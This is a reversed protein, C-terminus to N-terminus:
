SHHDIHRRRSESQFLEDQLLKLTDLLSDKEKTLTSIEDEQVIIKQQLKLNEAIVANAHIESDNTGNSPLSIKYLKSQLNENEKQISEMDQQVKRNLQKQSQLLNSMEQLSKKLQQNELLLSQHSPSSPRGEEKDETQQGSLEKTEPGSSLVSEATLHFIGDYGRSIALKHVMCEMPPGPPINPKPADDKLSLNFDSVTVHMPLAQGTSEDEVFKAMNALSSTNFALGCKEAMVSLYGPSDTQTTIPLEADAGPGSVIKLKITFTKLDDPSIESQGFMGPTSTFKNYFDEYYMNGPQNTSLHRTQIRIATDSGDNQMLIESGRVRFAIVSVLERGKTAASSEAYLSSMDDQMDTDTSSATESAGINPHHFAPMETEELNLMEFDLDDDSNDTRISMTDCDDIEENSDIKAKIKDTLGTIGSLASTFSKKMQDAAKNASKKMQQSGSGRSGFSSDYGSSSDHHNDALGQSSHSIQASVFMGQNSHEEVGTLGLGTHCQIKSDSLSKSIATHSSCQSGSDVISDNVRIDEDETVLGLDLDIQQSGEDKMYGEEMLDGDRLSAGSPSAPMNHTFPLLEAVYPCVMVFELDPVVLPVSFTTPSDSVGLFHEVDVSLQTQFVTFSELLRMLFLYQSHSMQAKVPGGVKAVINYNALQSSQGKDEPKLSINTKDCSSPNDDPSTDYSESDTSYYEKLLKRAPRDRQPSVSNYPDGDPSPPFSGANSSGRRSNGSIGVVDLQNNQCLKTEAEDMVIPMCFWLSVPVSEVFPIPRSKSVPVGVFELWAQDACVSWVDFSANRKLTNTKLLKAIAESGAQSEIGQPLRGAVLDKAYRQMYANDQGNAFMSFHPSLSILPNNNNPYQLSTFLHGDKYQRLVEALDARGTHEEVHTNTVCIKSVQLQVGEPRDPQSEVKKEASVIVRPMLAEIKIDVHQKPTDDLMEPTVSQSLNLMFFNVWLLTLYDLNLRIPNVLMYLNAHPVPYNIGEPFFYDTYEMHLVSMDSPLHLQKKDSSLFKCPTNRKNDATSVQYIIFEEVKLVTCSELLKTSRPRQSPVRIPPVQQHSPPPPPPSRSGSPNQNTPQPKETPKQNVPEHAPSQTPSAVCCTERARTVDQKFAAFLQQVWFNRSGQNDMYRYWHKREGGAPNFPYIDLSLKNFTIQMAGGEIRKNHKPNDNVNSDPSSDDCLHLDIRSSILHYSTTQVDYKMFYQAPTANSQSRARQSAQQQPYMQRYQGQRLITEAALKKGQERSKEIMMRLSNAYLIAAKLQTDTLVWLIDDLFLMVCTSIISCDSLNKKITIRVKSQNAILRLPTLLFDNTEGEVATAEIRTTQWEVEKFLLIEGRSSEKIKTSRLDDTKQWNPSKSQVVVRSLQLSAHFKKSMFKVSVANIHVYIGDIVRDSFGYKGGSRYSAEHAPNNPPRPDDCTEMELVVEDLYIGIPQSKLKTWAIKITLKNCHAKKLRMWTPLDMLDMLIAEDLELNSLEGEGRLTSLNIKDPSLNKTFKSLHKLIQNKLISAM